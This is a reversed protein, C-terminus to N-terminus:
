SNPHRCQGCQGPKRQDLSQGGSRGPMGERHLCRLPRAAVAQMNLEAVFGSTHNSPALFPTERKPSRNSLVDCHLMGSLTWRNETDPAIARQDSTGFFNRCEAGAAANIEWRRANGEPLIHTSPHLKLGLPWASEQGHTRGMSVPLGTGLRQEYPITMQNIVDTPQSGQAAARPHIVPFGMHSNEAHDRPSCPNPEIAALNRVPRIERLWIGSPLNELDSPGSGVESPVQAATPHFAHSQPPPSERFGFDTRQQIRGSRGNPSGVKNVLRAIGGITRDDFGGVSHSHTVSPHLWQFCRVMSRQHRTPIIAGQGFSLGDVVRQAHGTVSGSFCRSRKRGRQAKRLAHELITGVWVRHEVGQGM